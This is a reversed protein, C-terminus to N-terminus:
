ASALSFVTLFRKQDVTCVEAFLQNDASIALSGDWDYCRFKRILRNSARDFLRTAGDESATILFRGDSTEAMAHIGMTHGVNPTIEVPEGSPSAKAVSGSTCAICAAAIVANLFPRLNM